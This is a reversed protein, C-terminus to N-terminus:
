GPTRVQNSCQARLLSEGRHISALQLVQDRNSPYSSVIGPVTQNHDLHLAAAISLSRSRRHSLAVSLYEACEVSLGM